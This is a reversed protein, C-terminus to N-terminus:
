YFYKTGTMEKQYMISKAALAHNLQSTQHAPCQAHSNELPVNHAEPSHYPSGPRDNLTQTMAMRALGKGDLLLVAV